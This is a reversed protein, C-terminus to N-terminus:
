ARQTTAVQHRRMNRRLVAFVQWISSYLTQHYGSNAPLQTMLRRHCEPMNHYPMAPFLHHIAHYRLGVPFILEHLWPTGVVTVSELFQAEHSMPKGDSLFLHGALNRLWNWFVAVVSLVYLEIIYEFPLTGSAFLAVVFLLWLFCLVEGVVWWRHDEGRPVDRRYGPNSIYSSASRWVWARMRPSIWALPALILFRVIGFIPIALVQAFYLAIRGPGGLGFPQYEGDQATGYYRRAHHDTHNAYMFSPTLMPVGYILNWYAKFATMKGGPMHVVEHIFVGARFVGFTAVFFAAVQLPSWNPAMFYVWVAGYGIVASLTFDAFYIVPNHSMLDRVLRWAEPVAFGAPTEEEFRQKREPM